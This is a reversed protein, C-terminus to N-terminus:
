AQNQEEIWAFWKGEDLLIRRGVRRIVKHFGNQDAHEILHRLGGITPWDHHEHWKTVPILRNRREVQATEQM